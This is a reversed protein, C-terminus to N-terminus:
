INKTYPRQIRIQKHNPWPKTMYRKTMVLTKSQPGQQRTNSSDQRM